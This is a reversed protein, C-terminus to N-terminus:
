GRARRGACPRARAEVQREGQPTRAALPWTGGSREVGRPRRRARARRRAAATGRLARRRPPRAGRRGRRAQDDRAFARRSAASTSPSATIAPPRGARAGRRDQAALRAAARRRAARASARRRRRRRRVQAVHAAVGAGIRASLDRGGAPVVQQEDPGGPVPLVISARRSGDIRGGSVRSPPARPSACGCRRRGARRRRARAGLPREARRVVRDRRGPQDAAARRRRRALRAEGVM